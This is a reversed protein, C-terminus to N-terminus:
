DYLDRRRSIFMYALVGILVAGGAVIAIFSWLPLLISKFSYPETWECANQAGDTAKVRWYYSGYGLAEAETLTYGPESLGTMSILVNTFDVDGALQFDYNVGSDDSVASWNFAPTVKGTFGIRTATEPSILAPQAPPTSEMTFNASFTGNSSSVVVPHEVTHVDQTHTANISIDSFSGKDDSVATMNAVGDYSISIAENAPFGGGSVTLTTGAHGETPSLVFGPLVDFSIKKIDEEGTSEGEASVYYSGLSTSPVEFTADWCGDDDAEIDETQNKDDFLITIDEENKAFGSGTVTVTDGPSGEFVDMSIGPTVEFVAGKIEDGAINDSRDGVAYVWHDGKKSRPVTFTVNEWNGTEDIEIAQPGATVYYDENDLQTSGPAKLYFRIEIEDEDEDWGEGSVEVKTGAPGETEDLEISPYVTFELDDIIKTYDTKSSSVRIEHKGACSEPIYFYESYYSLGDESDYRGSMSELYWEDEDDEGFEEYFIYVTSGTTTGSLKVKDGVYGETEDLEFDGTAAQAPSAMLPTLMLCIFLTLVVRSLLKM